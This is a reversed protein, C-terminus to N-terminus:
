RWVLLPKVTDIVSSLPIAGLYRSDLSYITEGQVIIFGPKVMGTNPQYPEIPRGKNDYSAAPPLKYKQGAVFSVKKMLVEDNTLYRYLHPHKKFDPTFVVVVGPAIPENTKLYLGFPLSATKNIYCFQGIFFVAFVFVISVPFLLIKM